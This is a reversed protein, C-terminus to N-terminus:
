RKPAPTRQKVHHGIPGRLGGGKTALVVTDGPNLTGLEASPM